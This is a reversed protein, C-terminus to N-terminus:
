KKRTQCLQSTKFIKLIILWNLLNYVGIYKGLSKYFKHFALQLEFRCVFYPKFKFHEINNYYVKYPMRDIYNIIPRKM